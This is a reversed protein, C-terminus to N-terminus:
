RGMLLVRRVAARQGDTLPQLVCDLMDEELVSREGSNRLYRMRIEAADEVLAAAEHDLDVGAARGARLIVVAEVRLARLRDSASAMCRRATEAAAEGANAVIWETARAADPTRCVTPFLAADARLRWADAADQNLLAAVAQVAADQLQMRATWRGGEDKQLMVREAAEGRLAALDDKIRSDRVYQADARAIKALSAAYADLTSAIVQEDLDRLESAMAASALATVDVLADRSEGELCVRRHFKGVAAQITAQDAPSLLMAWEIMEDLKSDAIRCADAVITRLSIRVQRLAAANMRVRGDLAADLQARDAAQRERTEKLLDRMSAAYDELLLNAAEREAEGLQLDVTFRRFVDPAVIPEIGVTRFSESENSANPTVQGTAVAIACMCMALMTGIIAGRASGAERDPQANPGRFAGSSSM